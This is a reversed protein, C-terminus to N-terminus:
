GYTGAIAAPSHALGGGITQLYDAYNQAAINLADDLVLAPSDHAARYTNHKTM